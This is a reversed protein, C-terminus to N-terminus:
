VDPELLYVSITNRSADKRNVLFEQRALLRAGAPYGADAEATVLITGDVDQGEYARNDAYARTFPGVDMLLRDGRHDLDHVLAPGVSVVVSGGAYRVRYIGVPLERKVRDILRTADRALNGDRDTALDVSGVVSGSLVAITLGGAIMAPQRLIDRLLAPFVQWAMWAMAIWIFAGVTWMWRLNSEQIGAEEPLKVATYFGSAAAVVAVVAMAALDSKRRRWAWVGLAVTVFLVLYGGILEHTSPTHLYGLPEIRRSFIPWPALAEALREFAFAVGKGATRGGTFTKWIATLNHQGFLEDLLVPLWLVFGAVGSIVLWRQLWGAGLERRQIRRIWWIGVGITLLVLPAGTGLYALHDQLTFTSVVVFAPITRVDGALVSWAAFLLTLAAISGVNSSVPDHLLNGELSRAMAVSAVSALVMLGMGGRRFALWGIGVFAASNILGAGLCLGVTPGLVAVLPALLYFEIPGPHSTEIGSGFNEGTTPQGILPWQGNLVDHIRLGILANDGSPRWGEALVIAASLIPLLALGILIATFGIQAAPELDRMTHIRAPRFTRRRPSREGGESSAPAGDAGPGDLRESAADADVEDHSASDDATSSLRGM